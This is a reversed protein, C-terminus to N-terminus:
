ERVGEAQSLIWDYVDQLDVRSVGCYLFLKLGEQAACKAAQEDMDFKYTVDGNEHNAVDELKIYLADENEM